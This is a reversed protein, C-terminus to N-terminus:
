PVYLAPECYTNERKTEHLRSPCVRGSKFDQREENLAIKFNTHRASFFVSGILDIYVKEYTAVDVGPIILESAHVFLRM